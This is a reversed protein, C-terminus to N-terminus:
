PNAQLLLQSVTWGCDEYKGKAFDVKRLLTATEASIRGKEKVSDSMGYAGCLKAATVIQPMQQSLTHWTTIMVGQLENACATEVHAMCNETDLWPTGLVKFGHSKLYISTKVPVEKVNYHWDAIVTELHLAALLKKADEETKCGSFYPSEVKCAKRNILMDGWIIPRRGEKIVTRTLEHLYERMLRQFEVGEEYSYVEDCGLHIYETKNFIEYLERRINRLLRHAAESELNWSWGDSTFLDALHPNQDLVVHKGSSERSGSAHGLHNFMPIAEMGMDGIEKVLRRVEAGTYAGAWALEKLCNYQLMGWFELVVHTYQMVAALRICKKLFAKTTEPFVCLHIMRNELKYQSYLLLCPIRFQEQGEKLNVPEIRMMLVMMGRVLSGYDRASIAIGDHRVSLVYEAGEPIKPYEVSGSCFHFAQGMQPDLNGSFFCFGNWLDLITENDLCPDIEALLRNGFFFYEKTM